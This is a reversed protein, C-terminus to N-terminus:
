KRLTGTLMTGATKALSENLRAMVEQENLNRQQLLNTGSALSSAISSSVTKVTVSSKNTTTVNTSSSSQSETKEQVPPRPLEITETTSVSNTAKTAVDLGGEGCTKLRTRINRLLCIARAVSKRGSSSSFSLFCKICFPIFHSINAISSNDIIM